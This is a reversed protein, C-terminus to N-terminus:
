GIWWSFHRSLSRQVSGISKCVIISFVNILKSFKFNSQIFICVPSKDTINYDIAQGRFGDIYTIAIDAGLMKPAQDSGSFGFAMYNDEEIQGALKITIQPGFVQWSLQLKKHLQVCHM